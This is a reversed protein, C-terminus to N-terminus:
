IKYRPAHVPEAGAKVLIEDLEALLEARDGLEGIPELDKIGIETKLSEEFASIFYTINKWHEEAIEKNAASLLAFLLRRFRFSICTSMHGFFIANASNWEDVADRFESLREVSREGYKVRKSFSSLLVYLSPYIKIREEFLAKSYRERHLKLERHLEAKSRRGSVFIATM